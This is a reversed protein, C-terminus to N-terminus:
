VRRIQKEISTLVRTVQKGHELGTKCEGGHIFRIFSRLENELPSIEQAVSDTFVVERDGVIRIYRKKESYNWGTEFSFTVEDYYLITSVNGDETRADVSKPMGFLYVSLSVPHPALYWLPTTNEKQETNCLFFDIKHIGRIDKILNMLAVNYLYIHGIMIRNNSIEDLDKLSAVLPKEVLLYQNPFSRIIEAHTTDPTAIIIGDIDKYKHIDTYDKTKVYKIICDPIQQAVRLYNSGWKGKGVLALTTM